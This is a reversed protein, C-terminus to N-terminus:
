RTVVSRPLQSLRATAMALPSWMGAMGKILADGITFTAFGALACALGARDSQQM